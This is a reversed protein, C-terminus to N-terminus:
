FYKLMITIGTLLLKKLQVLYIYTPVDVSIWNGVGNTSLSDYSIILLHSGDTIVYETASIEM